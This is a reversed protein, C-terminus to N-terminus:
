VGSVDMGGDGSIGCAGSCAVGGASSAGRGGRAQVEVSGLYACEEGLAVNESGICM